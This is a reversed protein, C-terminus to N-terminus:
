SFVLQWYNHVSTHKDHSEHMCVNPKRAFLYKAEMLCLGENSNRYRVHLGADLIQVGSRAEFCIMEQHPRAIARDGGQGKGQKSQRKLNPIAPSDVMVWCMEHKGSLSEWHEHLTQYGATNSSASEICPRLWEGHQGHQSTQFLKTRPGFIHPLNPATQCANGFMEGPTCAFNTHM